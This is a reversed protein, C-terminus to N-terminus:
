TVIGSRASRRGAGRLQARGRRHETV